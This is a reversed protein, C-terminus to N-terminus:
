IFAAPTLLSLISMAVQIGVIVSQTVEATSDTPLARQSLLHFNWIDQFVKATDACAVSLIRLNQLMFPEAKDSAVAYNGPQTPKNVKNGSNREEALISSIHTLGTCHLVQM